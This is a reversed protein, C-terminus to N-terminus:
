LDALLELMEVGITSSVDGSDTTPFFLSDGAIVSVPFDFISGIFNKKLQLLTCYRSEKAGGMNRGMEEM